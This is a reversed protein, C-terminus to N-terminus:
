AGERLNVFEDRWLIVDDLEEKMLMLKKMM